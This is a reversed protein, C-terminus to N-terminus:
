AARPARQEYASGDRLMAWLVNVRRRAFTIVAHRHNKGEALFDATLVLGTGPLSRVIRAKPDAGIPEELRGDLAAVREKLRLAEAALDAVFV